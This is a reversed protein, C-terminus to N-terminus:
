LYFGIRLLPNTNPSRNDPIINYLITVNLSSRKGVVQKIGGGILIGHLWFRDTKATTTTNSFDRDTSLTEYEIHSYIAFNSKIKTKSGINDLFIYENYIRGGYINSSIREDYQKQNYYEYDLGIGAIIKPTIYYGINPSVYIVTISGFQLGVYGGFLFKDWKGSKPKEKISISDKKVQATINIALTLLICIVLYKVIKTVMKVIIKKLILERLVINITSETLIRLRLL